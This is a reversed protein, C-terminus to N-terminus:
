EMMLTHARLQTLRLRPYMASGEFPKTSCGIRRFAAERFAGTAEEAARRAAAATRWCSLERRSKFETKKEYGM